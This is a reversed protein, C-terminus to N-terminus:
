DHGHSFFGGGASVAAANRSQAAANKDSTMYLSATTTTIYQMMYGETYITDPYQRSACMKTGAVLLDEANGRVPWKGLALSRSRLVVSLLFGNLSESTAPILKM